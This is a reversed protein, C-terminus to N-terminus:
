SNDTDDEKTEDEGADADADDGADTTPESEVKPAAITAITFDRDSITPEVGAALKVASIHLSDGIETGSLDLELTEPISGVLTTVEVEHRVINLMGGRSLGPSDDENIFSVPVMVNVKTKASVRLFDVHMPEDRVPHFQIDRPLVNHKQGDVEITYRSTFFGASRMERLMIKPDLNISLPDKSDGYIVAPLKGARRAARAAGKGVRDRAEAQLVTVDSM